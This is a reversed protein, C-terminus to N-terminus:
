RASPMSSVDMEESPVVRTPLSSPERKSMLVAYSPASGYRELVDIAESLEASRAGGSVVVLTVDAGAATLEGAQESGPPSAALVREQGLADALAARLAEASSRDRASPPLVAITQGPNSGLADLLGNMAGVPRVGVEFCPCRLQQRLERIDDIRADHSRWFAVLVFGLLLGLVAGIPILEAPTGGSKTASTPLRVDAITNPTISPSATKPGTIVHAVALAGKIAGQSTSTTYSVRLLATNADNTATFSANLNNPVVREVASQIRSDLPILTAYTAALKTSAEPQAALPGAARVVLVVEASYTRSLASAVGGAVAAVLITSLIVLWGRRAAEILRKRSSSSSNM